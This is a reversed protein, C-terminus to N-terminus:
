NKGQLRLDRRGKFRLSWQELTSLEQCGILYVILIILEGQLDLPQLYPKIGIKEGLSNDDCQGHKVLEPCLLRAYRVSRARFMTLNLWIQFESYYNLYSSQMNITALLCIQLGFVLPSEASDHDSINTM